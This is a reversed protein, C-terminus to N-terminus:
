KKCLEITKDNLAIIQKSKELAIQNRLMQNEFGYNAISLHKKANALHEIAAICKSTIELAKM